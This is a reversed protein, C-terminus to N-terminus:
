LSAKGKPVRATNNSTLRDHVWADLESARFKWRNGFRLAPIQKASALRKVTRSCLGLLKAAQRADILSEFRNEAM